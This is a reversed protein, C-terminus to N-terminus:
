KSLEKSYALLFRRTMHVKFALLSSNLFSVTGIGVARCTELREASLRLFLIVAKRNNNVIGEIIISPQM